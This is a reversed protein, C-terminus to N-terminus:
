LWVYSAIIKYKAQTVGAVIYSTCLSHMYAAGEDQTGEGTLSGEHGNGWGYAGNTQHEPAVSTSTERENEM